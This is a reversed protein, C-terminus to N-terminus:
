LDELKKLEGWSPGLKAESLMAVDFEISGMAEEMIELEKRAAGKPASINIEDHVTVLLRGERKVSDYRILAEKTCDAASGQILYNLLKYEYTMMRGYKKSFAAPECYYLRGGWTRIPEGAKGRAKLEQDLGAIGPAAQKVASRVEAALGLDVKATAALLPVGMGYNIGFNMIKILGRDYDNGTIEKIRSQILDHYDIHPNQQYARKLDADEYHAAIRFEQQSYDRHCWLGGEDPLLYKRVLPLEPVGLFKPHTHGKFAKTVNMFRSCSLRGTRTGKDPGRVQNWDTYIFGGGAMAQALWPEMSMSLVTALRNRYDWAGAVRPDNFKDITMNKKSVSRKKSKPTYTWETVIGASALAEAVEEDADLNLKPAKLSKRLYVEVAEKALRYTMLDTNLRDVDLRIGREENEMLIPLLQLERNYAQRMREDLEPYFKEHLKVTRVVDGIAYAGVLKGPAKAIHPGPNGNKAIVGHEVLWDRVADREEPPMGLWKESSPKLSLTKSHPDRLFLEVLTDHVKEWPPLALGFHAKAVALDFKANHFLIEAKGSWIDKLEKAARSKDCNNETPHGWALYYPKKGPRAIAVGVPEPPYKPRDEIAQTEFDVCIPKM